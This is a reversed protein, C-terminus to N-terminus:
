FVEGTEEGWFERPALRQGGGNYETGCECENSWSSYCYVECGCDCDVVTFTRPGNAWQETITRKKM